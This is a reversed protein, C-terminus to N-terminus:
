IASGKKNKLLELKYGFWATLFELHEDAQKKETDDDFIHLLSDYEFASELLEKQKKICYLHDFLVSNISLSYLSQWAAMWLQRSKGDKEKVDLYLDKEFLEGQKYKEILGQTYEHRAQEERQDELGQMDEDESEEPPEYSPEIIEEKENESPGEWEGTEQYIEYIDSDSLWGTNNYVINADTHERQEIEEITKKREEEEMLKDWKEQKKKTINRFKKKLDDASKLFTRYCGLSSSEYDCLIKFIENMDDHLKSDYKKGNIYFFLKESDADGFVWLAGILYGFQGGRDTLRKLKEDVCEQSKKSANCDKIEMALLNGFRIGRYHVIIDPRIRDTSNTDCFYQFNELEKKAASGYKDYEADVDRKRFMEQLYEALKHSIAPEYVRTPPFFLFSDENKVRNIQKKIGEILSKIRDYHFNKNM